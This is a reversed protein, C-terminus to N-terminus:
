EGLGLEKIIRDVVYKKVTNEPHPEHFVLINNSENKFKRRSGKGNLQSYGYYGLLRVVENWEFDSPRSLIRQELKIQRSM